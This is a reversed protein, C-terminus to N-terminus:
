VRVCVFYVPSMESGTVTHPTQPTIDIDIEAWKIERTLSSVWSMLSTVRSSAAGGRRRSCTLSRQPSTRTRFMNSCRSCATWCLLFSPFPFSCIFFVFLRIFSFEHSRVCSQVVDSFQELAMKSCKQRTQGTNGACPGSSYKISRVRMYHTHTRAHTHAWRCRRQTETKQDPKCVSCQKGSYDQFSLKDKVRLVSSGIRIFYLCASLMDCM